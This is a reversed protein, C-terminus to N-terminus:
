GGTEWVRDACACCIGVDNDMAHVEVGKESTRLLYGNWTAEEIAPHDRFAFKAVTWQICHTSICLEQLVQDFLGKNINQM